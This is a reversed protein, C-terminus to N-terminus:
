NRELTLAYAGVWRPDSSGEPEERVELGWSLGLEVAGKRGLFTHGFPSVLRSLEVSEQSVVAQTLDQLYSQEVRPLLRNAKGRKCGGRQLRRKWWFPVM